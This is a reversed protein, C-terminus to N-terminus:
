PKVVPWEGPAAERGRGRLRGFGLAMTALGVTSVVGLAFGGYWITAPGFHDSLLGGVVPAIARSCAWALWYTSVYRGRLDVPAQSAVYAAATPVLLLEGSSVIVMSLWLGWFSSMLAVSGAGVAYTGMGIAIVALHPFRCTVRTVFYQLFVCMAANTVFLWGIDSEPLGLNTKVYVAMLVWVTSPAIMGLGILSAFTVYRRDRLVDRYGRATSDATEPAAAVEGAAAVAVRRSLTERAFRTLLVAYALFGAAAGAFALDYSTAALFGGVAPGMGFGVNGAIRNWSYAKARGAPPIMDALMADAGVQYLPNSLGLVIMLVAFEVYVEARPMLLYSVGTGVLSAVMVVRRGVRDALSGAMFSSAMTACSQITVLVAVASLSMHLKGSVYILMFPWVMSGGAQSILVGVIMLWYQRPYGAVLGPSPAPEVSPGVSPGVSPRASLRVAHRALDGQASIDAAEVGICERTGSDLRATRNTM